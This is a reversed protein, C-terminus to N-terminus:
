KIMRNVKAPTTELLEEVAANTIPISPQLVTSHPTVMIKTAGEVTEPESPQSVTPFSAASTNVVNVSTITNDPESFQSTSSLSEVSSEIANDEEPM